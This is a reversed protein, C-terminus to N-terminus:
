FAGLQCGKIKIKLAECAASIDMKPRNLRKAIAWAAKCSLRNDRLADQIAKELDKSVNEAPKVFRKHPKYGFLGMQCKVLRLELADVTFGVEEPPIEFERALAHAAACPMEGDKSKEKIAAVLRQDVQRDPPHKRAYHGRDEHTM